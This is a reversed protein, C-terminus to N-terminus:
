KEHSLNNNTLWFFYLKITQDSKTSQKKNKSSSGLNFGPWTVALSFLLHQTPSFIQRSILNLIFILWTYYEVLELLIFSMTHCHFVIFLLKKKWFYLLLLLHSAKLLKLTKEESFNQPINYISSILFNNYGKVVVLALPMKFQRHNRQCHLALWSCTWVKDSNRPSKRLM